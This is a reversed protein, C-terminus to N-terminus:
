GKVALVADLLSATRCGTVETFGVRGLLSEYEALTPERSAFRGGSRECDIVQRVGCVSRNAEVRRNAVL